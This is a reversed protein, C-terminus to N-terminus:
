YDKLCTWCYDMGRYKELKRGCVPCYRTNSSSSSSSSKKKAAAAAAAAAAARRQEEEIAAITNNENRIANDIEPLITNKLYNSTKNIDTSLNNLTGYINANESNISYNQDLKTLVIDDKDNYNNLYTIISNVKSKLTNYNNINNRCEAISAM